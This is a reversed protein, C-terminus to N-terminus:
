NATRKIFLQIDKAKYIHVSSLLRFYSIFFFGESEWINKEGFTYLETMIWDGHAFTINEYQHCLETHAKHQNLQKISIYKADWDM